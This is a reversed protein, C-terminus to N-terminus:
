LRSGSDEVVKWNGSFHPTVRRNTYDEVKFINHAWCFDTGLVNVDAFHSSALPVHVPQTYGVLRSLLRMRFGLSGLRSRPM